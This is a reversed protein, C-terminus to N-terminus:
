NEDGTYTFNKVARFFARMKEHDKIGPSVEVGSSVDVGWPRVISLANQVNGENLGGALIIKGQERCPLSATWDFTKGTGGQAGDVFTDLLFYDAPYVSLIISDFYRDVRFAKIIRIGELARLSFPDEGGHLQVVTLNAKRVTERIVEPAEDVFVGVREISPSLSRSIYGAQFPDIFRRSGPYFVFGVAFAGLREAELADERRTIGCIKIHTNM